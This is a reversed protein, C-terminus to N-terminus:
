SFFRLFKRAVRTPLIKLLPMFYKDAGITVDDRKAVLADAIEAAVSDASQMKYRMKEAFDEMGAEEFFNTDTVGPRIVTTHINTNKLEERLAETFGEIGFKTASYVSLNPFAMRGALSSVFALHGKGRVKMRRLAERTMYIAGLLNTSVISDIEDISMADVHSNHGRAANNIVLDLGLGSDDVAEFLKQVQLVDRIDTRVPTIKGPLGNSQKSLSDLKEPNRAAAFVHAGETALKKSLAYGIGASAGTVVVSTGTFRELSPM